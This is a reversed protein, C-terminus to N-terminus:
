YLGTGVSSHGSVIRCFQCNQDSFVTLGCWRLFLFFVYQLRRRRDVGVVSCKILCFLFLSALIASIRLKVTARDIIRVVCTVCEYAWICMSIWTCLYSLSITNCVSIRGWIPVYLGSTLSGLFIMLIPCLQTKYFYQITKTIVLHRLLSLEFQLGLVLFTGLYLVFIVYLLEVFYTGGINLLIRVVCVCLYIYM